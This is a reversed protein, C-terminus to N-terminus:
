TPGALKYQRLKRYLTSRGIGLRRVAESINGRTARLVQEITRREIDDLKGVSQQTGHDETAAGDEGQADPDPAAPAAASGEAATAAMAKSGARQNAVSDATPGAAARLTKAQAPGRQLRPPLDAPVIFPGSAIVVAREMANKLERVNGPWDYARLLAMTEPALRLPAASEGQLTDLMAQALTLVDDHRDRLAPLELEFVAIRFYLDERFRGARVESLLDRHTAAILRFDSSVDQNGGVRQFRREQLVRLLKAQAPLSLEAVEDLFLTGHDALEFRGVRRATAGTFAGKEHGFLESEQLSDPVAACNLAVFPGSRRGSHDHIANAVLEKGTGSEGHILVTIDCASVRDIQRFLSKMPPSNGVIGPYGSGEAERELHLLRMNMRSHAVANRVVTLLRARDVPKTLYDYAGRKMASVASDVSNDGTLVIVSLLRHNTHVREHVEAGSIDPLGLDLCLADPLSEALRQLGQQGTHCVEVNHGAAQLIRQALLCFNLDDDIILM